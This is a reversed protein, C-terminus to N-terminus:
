EMERGVGEEKMEGDKEVANADTAITPTRSRATSPFTALVWLGKGNCIGAECPTTLVVASGSLLFLDSTSVVVEKWAMKMSTTAFRTPLMMGAVGICITWKRTLSAREKLSSLLMNRSLTGIARM